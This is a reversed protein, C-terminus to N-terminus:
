GDYSFIKGKFDEGFKILKGKGEFKGARFSGHYFSGDAYILIASTDEAKRKVIKGYYINNNSLVLFAPSDLADPVESHQTFDLSTCM